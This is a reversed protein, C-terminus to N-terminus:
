GDVEELLAQCHEILSGRRDHDTGFEAIVQRVHTEELPFVCRTGEAGEGRQIEEGDWRVCSLDRAEIARRAASESGDPSLGYREALRGQLSPWGAMTSPTGSDEPAKCLERVTQLLDDRHPDTEVRDYATQIPGDNHYITARLQEGAVIEADVIRGPVPEITPEGIVDAPALTTASM